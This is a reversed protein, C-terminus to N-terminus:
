EYHVRGGLVKFQVLTMFLIMVFLVFAIASGYGMAFIEFANEYINYVIVNTADVPGGRTMVRVSDFVQFSGIISTVLVFFTTPSLLPWTIHRFIQWSNAGDIKAAEYYSESIGQLGALFIVMTFGAHRWISTIAISPMALQPDLLWLVPEAGFSVLISNLLGGTPLYIFKWVVSMVATATIVPLYYVFRYVKILGTARRNLLLAVGLGFALSPVVTLLTYYITNAFAKQFKADTTFLKTYNELGIFKPPTLGGNWETLSIYLAYLLPGYFFIAFLVVVPTVLLWPEINRALARRFGGRAQVQAAQHALAM